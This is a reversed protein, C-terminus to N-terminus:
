AAPSAELFRVLSVAREAESGRVWHMEEARIERRERQAGKMAGRM